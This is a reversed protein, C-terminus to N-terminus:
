KAKPPRRLPRNTPRLAKKRIPKDTTEYYRATITPTVAAIDNIDLPILTLFQSNDDEDRLQIEFEQNETSQERGDLWEKLFVRMGNDIEHVFTVAIKGYVQVRGRVKSGVKQVIVFRVAIGQSKDWRRVESVCKPFSAVYLTSRQSGSVNEMKRIDDNHPEM